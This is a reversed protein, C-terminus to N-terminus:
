VMAVLCKVNTSSSGVFALRFQNQLKNHDGNIGGITSFSKFKQVASYYYCISFSMKRDMEKGGGREKEERVKYNIISQCPFKGRTHYLPFHIGGRRSSHNNLYINEGLMELTTQGLQM